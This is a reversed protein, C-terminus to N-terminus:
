KLYEARHRSTNYHYNYNNGAQQQQMQLRYRAEREGYERERYEWPPQERLLEYTEAQLDLLGRAPKWDSINDEDENLHIKKVYKSYKDYIKGEKNIGRGSSTINLEMDKAFKKAYFKKIREVLSEQNTLKPM